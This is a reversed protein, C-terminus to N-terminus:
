SYWNIQLWIYKHVINVVTTPKGAIRFIDRVFYSQKGIPTSPKYPLIGRDGIAHIAHNGPSLKHATTIQVLLDMM